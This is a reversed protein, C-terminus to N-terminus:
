LGLTLIYLVGLAYKREYFKHAGFCGLFFCLLLARSKIRPNRLDPVHMALGGNKYTDYESDRVIQVPRFKRVTAEAM